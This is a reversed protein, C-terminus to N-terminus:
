LFSSEMRGDFIFLLKCVALKEATLKQLTPHFVHLLTLLSHQEERILNLERFSLLVVASVDQNELGEAWDLTFKQVSFTKGIGAVGNTLVVRIPGHQDPLPKFIDNCRIPSDSLAMSATELQRVEHQNRVEEGHGEIIYLETYISNLLTKGGIEDTGETVYKYRRRLRIKHKDLVKQLGVGAEVSSSWNATQLGTLSQFREGCQPCSSQGSSASQDWYSVMCQRCFWHGCSTFVPDRLFEHCTCCSLQNVASVHSSSREETDSPGPEDSFLPPLINSHDSKMSLCSFASSVNRDEQRQRRSM